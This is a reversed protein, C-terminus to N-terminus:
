APQQPSPQWAREVGLAEVVRQWRAASSADIQSVGSEIVCDGRLLKADEHIRHGAHALTEGLYSRVLSADEPNLYIACHQHPLHTLAERVVNLLVEPRASIENRVVQRAIELALALLEDAVGADIEHLALSLRNVANSLHEAQLKLEAIQQEVRQKGTELGSAEGAKVGAERGEAFGKDHGEQYGKHFGENRAQGHLPDIEAATEDVPPKVADSRGDAFVDVDAGGYDDLQSLDVLENAANEPCTGDEENFDVLEWREWATLKNM